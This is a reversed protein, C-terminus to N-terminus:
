LIFSSFGSCSGSYVQHCFNFSSVTTSNPLTITIIQSPSTAVFSFWVDDDETGTCQADAVGTAGALTGSAINALVCGASGVTVPTAGACGDNSPPPPPTSVCVGFDQSQGTTATFSYVRIYYTQGVVYVFPM